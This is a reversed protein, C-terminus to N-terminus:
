DEPRQFSLGLSQVCKKDLERADGWELHQRVDPKFAEKRAAPVTEM